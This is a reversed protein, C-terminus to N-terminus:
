KSETEPKAPAAGKSTTAKRPAATKTAPQSAAPKTEVEDPVEQM